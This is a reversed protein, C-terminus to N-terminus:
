KASKKGCSICLGPNGIPSGESTFFITKLILVAYNEDKIYLKMISIAQNKLDNKKSWLTRSLQKFKMYHFFFIKKTSMHFFTNWLEDTLM